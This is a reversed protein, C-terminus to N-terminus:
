KKLENIADLITRMDTQSQKKMSEVDNCVTTLVKTNTELIVETKSLRSEHNIGFGAFFSLGTLVFGLLLTLAKYSVKKSLAGYVGGEGEPGEGHLDKQLKENDHIITDLKECFLPHAGCVPKEEAM